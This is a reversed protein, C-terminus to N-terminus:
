QSPRVRYAVVIVVVGVSFAVLGLWILGSFAVPEIESAGILVLGVGLAIVALGVQRERGSFSVRANVWGPRRATIAMWLGQIMAMAGVVLSALGLAAYSM